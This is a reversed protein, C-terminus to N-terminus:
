KVGIAVAFAVRGRRVSSRTTPVISASLLGKSAKKSGSALQGRFQTASASRIKGGGADANGIKCQSMLYDGIAEVWQLM